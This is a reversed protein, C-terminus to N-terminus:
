ALSGSDSVKMSSKASPENGVKVKVNRIASLPDDHANWFSQLWKMTLTNQELIGINRAVSRLHYTKFCVRPVVSIARLSTGIM